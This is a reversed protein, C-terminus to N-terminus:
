GTEDLPPLSIRLLRWEAGVARKVEHIGGERLDADPFVGFLASGSGALLSLSAGANLMAGRADALVPHRRFVPGHFDNEALARLVDWRALREPAPLAGPVPLAGPAPRPSGRDEELWGYAAATEVRFPPVAVLGPRSPPPSLPLLRRGREWALAFPSRLLGFPVDSGLEGAISMLTAESLPTGLLDNLGRLVAAADASGGGLGTGVPIRKVLHIRVAPAAGAARFFAEAARHALNEPGSPLPDEPGDWTVSLRVGPSGLRLELEDRLDTALFLTELSHYGTADPPFVRLRLNVKAGAALLRADGAEAEM